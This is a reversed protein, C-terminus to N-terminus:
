RRTKIKKAYKSILAQLVREFKLGYLTELVETFPLGESPGFATNPNCDTLYPTGTQEDVRIDYKAYDKNHLITFARNVYQEIKRVLAEDKVPAYDYSNANDYSELSTFEHKGDPKMHFQKQGLFVHRRRSDDFVVATIEPGDIFREVIVPIHYTSILSEVQEQADKLNEKVAANDIGVSGGSENLKVILPLGLDPNIKAGARQIFQYEPTPIENAMLIQKFMNRDNGIVLGRMDAGTYPIDVMELAGPVSTQLVDKGRLTDVLNLVLDPRDVIINTIFREDAPYLRNPIGLRDMVESVQKARGIVEQEAHYAEETEFYEREVNSYAIAVLQLRKIADTSISLRPTPNPHKNQRANEKVKPTESMSVMRNQQINGEDTRAVEAALCSHFIERYQNIKGDQVM